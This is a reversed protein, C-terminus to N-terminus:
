AISRGCGNRIRNVLTLNAFSGELNAVTPGGVWGVVLVHLILFASVSGPGGPTPCRVPDSAPTPAVLVNQESGTEFFPRNIRGNKRRQLMGPKSTLM